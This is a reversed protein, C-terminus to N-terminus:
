LSRSYHDQLAKVQAVWFEEKKQASAKVPLLELEQALSYFGTGPDNSNLYLVLASVMLKTEPWSRMVILYLLHGMGAREDARTFDFGPLGTRRELTTNLETYSTTKKLRAREVLFALGAETLQNWTAEDRGYM